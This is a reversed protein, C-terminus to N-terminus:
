KVHEDFAAKVAANDDSVILVAYAGKSFTVGKGIKESQTPDYTAYISQRTKLHTQLTALAAATDAADKVRIVVIEDANGKGDKAYTISFADVKAYDLDSVTAFYTEAEKDESSVYAMDGFTTAALMAEKLDFLSVNNATGKSCGCLLLMFTALCLLLAITKKM